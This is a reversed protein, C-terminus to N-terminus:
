CSTSVCAALADATPDPGCTTTGPPAPPPGQQFLHQLVFVADTLNAQGNDDADAADQCAPAAAQQFLWNLTAVADTLNVVGNDDTDGRRLNPEASAITITCSPIGGGSCPTGSITAVVTYTHEGPPVIEDRFTTSGVSTPEGVKEGNRFLEVRDYPPPRLPPVWTLTV